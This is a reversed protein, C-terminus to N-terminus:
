KGRVERLVQSGITNAARSDYTRRSGPSSFTAYGINGAYERALSEGDVIEPTSAVEVAHQLEHGLIALQQARSALYSLQVVVYRFGGAAGVFTLRGAVGAIPAADCRVYVVVDSLNIREVLSRLTASTRVGDNLLQALRQDLTRVQTQSVPVDILLSEGAAPSISCLALLLGAWVATRLPVMTM